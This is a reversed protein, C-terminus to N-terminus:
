GWLEEKLKEPDLANGKGPNRISRLFEDEGRLVKVRLEDISIGEFFLTDGEKLDLADRIRKPLVIRGNTGIDTSSTVM